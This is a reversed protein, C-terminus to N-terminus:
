RERHFRRALPCSRFYCAALIIALLALIIAAILEAQLATGIFEGGPLNRMGPFDTGSLLLAATTVILVAPTVYKCLPHIVRALAPRIEAALVKKSLFWTFVVALLLAAIQLGLTGVTEDVFDLVRIGGIRLSLGSYSLASPLGVLVIAGTLLMAVRRRPWDLSECVAAVGVELMSIASTLAAFFLVLFFAAAILWGAPMAAFAKPLTTFALEAGVTPALGFSFVIPFIVIGALIAVGVDALTIILSSIPIGQEKRIYAGYTLLIGTGVSLSFFAQGFAAGWVLPDTLVTFDPTLLFAAGESFGPLTTGYLALIVLTGISVPIVVMSVREIGARVGMSVVAGTIVASLVFLIVPLWGATFHSFAVAEGSVSFFFYGLTWGTIVLYYSLVLFVIACLLWGIVRFGPRVSRFSSVVTGQFHRGMSFELVMLPLVFLFVAILYPILYAGGGNQGAVASFRWINGLGVASGIAALIFGARSSWHEVILTRFRSVM